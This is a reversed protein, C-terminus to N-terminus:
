GQVYTKEEKRWPMLRNSFYDFVVDIV